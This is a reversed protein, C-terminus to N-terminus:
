SIDAEFWVKALPFLLAVVNNRLSIERPTEKKELERLEAGGALSNAWGAFVFGVFAGDRYTVRLGDNWEFQKEM